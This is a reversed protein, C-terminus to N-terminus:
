QEVVERLRKILRKKRYRLTSNPIRLYMTSITKLTFKRCFHNKFILLDIKDECIKTYNFNHLKDLIEKNPREKWMSDEESLELPITM